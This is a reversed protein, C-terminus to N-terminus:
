PSPILVGMVTIRHKDSDMALIASFLQQPTTM